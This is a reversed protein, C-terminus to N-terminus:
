EDDLFELPSRDPGPDRDVMPPVTDADLVRGTGEPCGPRHTADLREGCERCRAAPRGHRAPTRPAGASM